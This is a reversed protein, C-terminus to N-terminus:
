KETNFIDAFIDRKNKVTFDKLQYECGHATFKVDNDNESVINEINTKVWELTEKKLNLLMVLEDFTPKFKEGTIASDLVKILAQVSGSKDNKVVDHLGVLHIKLSGIFENLSKTDSHTYEFTPYIEGEGDVFFIMHSKLDINVVNSPEDNVESFNLMTAYLAKTFDIAYYIKMDTNMIDVNLKTISIPMGTNLATQYEPTDLLGCDKAAKVLKTIIIPLELIADSDYSNLKYTGLINLNSTSM